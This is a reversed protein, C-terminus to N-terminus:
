WPCRSIPAAKLRYRTARGEGFGEIKKLDLLKKIASEVTRPPMHLSEVATKRSFDGTARAWNWLEWQKESLLNESGDDASIRIAVRAQERVIDLFFVLWESLDESATKWSRQRRNLALYYDAKLGEIYKEHSVVETFEYGERLLILNALLRSTRRNGDQFPHIALYGFLFSAALILPHRFREECAQGYWAVLERM